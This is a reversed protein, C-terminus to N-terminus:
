LSFIRLSFTAIITFLFLLEIVKTPFFCFTSKRLFCSKDLSLEFERILLTTSTIENFFTSALFTMLIISEIIPFFFYKSGFIFGRLEM